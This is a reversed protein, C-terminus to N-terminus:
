KLTSMVVYSSINAVRPLATLRDAHFSEYAALDAVAIRLLYDLSPQEPAPEIRIREPHTLVILRRSKHGFRKRLRTADGLDVIGAEGRMGLAFERAPLHRAGKAAHHREDDRARRSFFAELPSLSHQPLRPM